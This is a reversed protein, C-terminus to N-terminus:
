RAQLEGVDRAAAFVGTVEGDADRYTTANYLVATIHGDRHRIELPYDRMAGKSFVLEYVARAEAPETFYNAFDTGVLGDRSRGTAAVTAENVDMILGDPGITVLPDLSAEILRRNYASARRLEDEALRQREEEQAQSEVRATIDRGVAFLLEGLPTIRWEILRYSGDHHRQRNVFDALPRGETLDAIAALTSERDDPHLLDLIRSGEIEALPYGLTTEWAPNVHRIVGDTDAVGLLDGSLSFLRDLEVAKAQLEQEARRRRLSVAALGAFSELLEGPPEPLGAKLALVSTGYLQGEVVYAIGVFRDVGLLRRVIGDVAPPIAGFSAQTLTEHTAHSGGLIMEYTEADVPSRTGELRRLLPASVTRLTGASVDIVRTVLVSEDPEYQSFAVASAGTLERLRGALFAALDAERTLSALDVALANTASLWRSKEALAERATVTDTIDRVIHVAGVIEEADDFLPDASVLYWREGMTLEFSERQGTRLMERYPCGDFFTRSGHMLEFCKKGTAQDASLGLLALMSQNCRLVTGDRDLLCVMDNM